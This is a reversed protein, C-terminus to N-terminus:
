LGEEVLEVADDEDVGLENMANRVKEATDEKGAMAKAFSPNLDHSEMLEQIEEDPTEDISDQYDEDM